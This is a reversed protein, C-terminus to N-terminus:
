SPSAVHLYTQCNVCLIPKLRLACAILGDNFVVALVVDHMSAGISYEVIILLSFGPTLHTSSESELFAQPM